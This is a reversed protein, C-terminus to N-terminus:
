QNKTYNKQNIKIIEKWRSPNSTNKKKRPAHAADNPLERGKKKKKSTLV